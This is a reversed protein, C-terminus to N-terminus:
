DTTADNKKSIIEFVSTESEFIFGKSKNGESDFERQELIESVFRKEKWNLELSYMGNDENMIGNGFVFRGDNNVMLYILNATRKYIIPLAYKSKTSDNKNIWNLHCRVGMLILKLNSAARSFPRFMIQGTLEFADNMKGGFKFSRDKLMSIGVIEFEHTRHSFSGAMEYNYNESDCFAGEIHDKIIFMNEVIFEENKGLTELEGKWSFCNKGFLSYLDGQQIKDEPRTRVEKLNSIIKELRMLFESKPTGNKSDNQKMGMVKIKSISEEIPFGSNSLQSIKTQDKIMSALKSMTEQNLMGFSQRSQASIIKKLGSLAKSANSDM